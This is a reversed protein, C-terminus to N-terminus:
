AIAQRGAGKAALFTAIYFHFAPLKDPPIRNDYKAPAPTGKLIEDAYGAWERQEEESLFLMIKRFVITSAIPLLSHTGGIRYLLRGTREPGM